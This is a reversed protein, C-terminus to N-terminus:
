EIAGLLKLKYKELMWLVADGDAVSTFYTGCGDKDRGIIVVDVLESALAQQLVMQPDVNTKTNLPFDVVNSM